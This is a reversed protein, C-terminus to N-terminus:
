KPKEQEPRLQGINTTASLSTQRAIRSILYYKYIYPSQAQRPEIASIEEAM